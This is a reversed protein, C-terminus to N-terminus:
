ASSRKWGRLAGALAAAGARAGRVLSESRNVLSWRPDGGLWGHLEVRTALEGSVDRKFFTDGGWNLFHYGRERARRAAEFALLVFAGAKLAEATSAAARSELVKGQGLAFGFGSGVEGERVALLLWMWPLEWERWRHGPAPLDDERDLPAVGHRRDTERQVAAFARFQEIANAEVVAYGERQARRIMSRKTKDMAAVLADDAVDIRHLLTKGARFAPAGAPAAVPLHARVRRGGAHLSLARVLRGAEAPELQRDPARGACEVAGQWRWPLGCVWEDRELRAAILGRAGPDGTQVALAPTGLEHMWKLFDLRFAFHAYPAVALAANWDREFGPDLPEGTRWARANV